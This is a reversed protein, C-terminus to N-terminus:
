RRSPLDYDDEDLEEAIFDESLESLTQSVNLGADLRRTTLLGERPRSYRANLTCM